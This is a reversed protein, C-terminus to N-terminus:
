SRAVLMIIPWVGLINFVMFVLPDILTTDRQMVAQIFDMMSGSIEPSLWIVHIWGILWVVLLFAKNM